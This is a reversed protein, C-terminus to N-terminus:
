LEAPKQISTEQAGNTFESKQSSDAFGSSQKQGQEPAPRCALGKSKEEEQNSILTAHAQGFM